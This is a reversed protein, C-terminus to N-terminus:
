SSSCSGEMDLTYQKVRRICAIFETRSARTLFRRWMDGVWVCFIVASFVERSLGLKLKVLSVRVSIRLETERM